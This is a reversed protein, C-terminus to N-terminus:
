SVTVVPGNIGHYVIRYTGRGPLAVNYDHGKGVRTRAVTRWTQGELAQV